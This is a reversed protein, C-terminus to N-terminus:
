GRKMYGVTEMIDEYQNNTLLHLISLLIVCEGTDIFGLLVSRGTLSFPPQQMATVGAAEYAGGPLSLQRISNEEQVLGYCKPIYAYRYNTVNLPMVQSRDLYLVSFNEGLNLFCHQIELSMDSPYDLLIEYFDESVIMERCDM